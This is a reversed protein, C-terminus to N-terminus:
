PRHTSFNMSFAPAIGAKGMGLHFAWISCDMVAAKVGHWGQICCWGETHKRVEMVGM